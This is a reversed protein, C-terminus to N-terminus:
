RGVSFQFQSREFGTPIELRWIMFTTKAANGSNVCRWSPRSGAISKGRFESSISLSATGRPGSPKEFPIAIKGGEALVNFM